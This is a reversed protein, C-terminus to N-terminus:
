CTTYVIYKTTRFIIDSKVGSNIFKFLKKLWDSYLGQVELSKQWRNVLNNIDTCYFELPKSSLFDKFVTEVERKFLFTKKQPPTCSFIWVNSFTTSTLLIYHIHFLRIDCTPWSRNHWGPLM